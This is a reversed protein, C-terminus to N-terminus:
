AATAHLGPAGTQVPKAGQKRSVGGIAVAAMASGRGRGSGAGAAPRQELALM